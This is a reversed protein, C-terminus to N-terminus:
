GGRSISICIKHEMMPELALESMFHKMAHERSTCNLTVYNSCKCTISGVKSVLHYLACLPDNFILCDDSTARLSAQPKSPQNENYAVSLHVALVASLTCFSGKASSAFDQEWGRERYELYNASM